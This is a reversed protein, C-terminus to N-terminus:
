RGTRQFPVERAGTLCSDSHGKLISRRRPPAGVRSVLWPERDPVWRLLVPLHQALPAAPGTRAQRRVVCGVPRAVLVTAEPM